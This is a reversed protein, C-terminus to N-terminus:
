RDDVNNYTDDPMLLGRKTVKSVLITCEANRTHHFDLMDKLPFECMVDSSFLLIGILTEPM